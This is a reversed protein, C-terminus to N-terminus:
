REPTGIRAGTASAGPEGCPCGSRAPGRGNLLRPPPLIPDAEGAPAPEKWAPPVESRTPPCTRCARRGFWGYVQLAQRLSPWDCDSYAYAGTGPIGNDSALPNPAPPRGIFVRWSAPSQAASPNGPRLLLFALLLASTASRGPLRM